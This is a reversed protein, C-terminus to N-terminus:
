DINFMVLVEEPPMGKFKDYNPAGGKWDPEKDPECSSYAESTKIPALNDTGPYIKAM